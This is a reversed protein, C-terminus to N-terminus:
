GHVSEALERRAGPGRRGAAPPARVAVRSVMWGRTRTQKSAWTPHHRPRIGALDPLEPITVKVPTDYSRVM